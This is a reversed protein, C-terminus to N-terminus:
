QAKYGPRGETEREVGPGAVVVRGNKAVMCAPISPPQILLRAQLLAVPTGLPRPVGNLGDRGDTSQNRKMQRQRNHTHVQTYAQPAETHVHGRTLTVGHTHVPLACATWLQRTSGIWSAEAAPLTPAVTDKARHRCPLGTPFPHWSSARFSIGWTDPIIRCSVLLFCCTRLHSGTHIQHPVRSPVFPFHDGQSRPCPQPPSNTHLPATCSKPVAPRSM